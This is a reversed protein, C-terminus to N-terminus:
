RVNVASLKNVLGARIRRGKSGPCPITDVLFQSEDDATNHRLYLMLGLLHWHVARTHVCSGRACPLRSSCATVKTRPTELLLAGTPTLLTVVLGQRRNVYVNPVPLATSPQFCAPM